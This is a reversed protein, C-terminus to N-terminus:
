VRLDKSHESLHGQNKILRMHCRRLVIKSPTISSDVSRSCSPYSRRAAMRVFANAKAFFFSDQRLAYLIEFSQASRQPDRM